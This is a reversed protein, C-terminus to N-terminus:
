KLTKLKPYKDTKVIVNALKSTHSVAKKDPIHIRNGGCTQVHYM